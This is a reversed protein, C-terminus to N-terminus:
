APITFHFASGKGLESEVWIKGGFIEVLQKSLFLGIGTGRYLSQKSNDIKMFREFIVKQHEPQIGIGTDKVSFLYFEKDKKCSIEIYGKDTFKVANSVLNRLIQELRLRDVAVILKPLEINTVIEINKDSPVTLQFSEAIQRILPVVDVEKIKVTLQNSEIKSVDIIDEILSLLYDSNRNVHEVFIKKEEESIEPDTILSSFGVIANLPTRIEHSM